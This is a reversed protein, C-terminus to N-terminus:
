GHEHTYIIYNGDGPVYSKDRCNPRYITRWPRFIVGILITPSNGAYHLIVNPKNIGMTELSKYCSWRSFASEFLLECELSIVDTLRHKLPQWWSDQELVDDNIRECSSDHKATVTNVCLWMTHQRFEHESKLQLVEDWFINWVVVLFWVCWRSPLAIGAPHLVFHYTVCNCNITIDITAM